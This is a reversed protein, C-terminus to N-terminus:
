KCFVLKERNTSMATFISNYAFAEDTKCAYARVCVYEGRLCHRFYSPDKSFSLFLVSQTVECKGNKLEVKSARTVSM